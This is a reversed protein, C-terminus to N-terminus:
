QELSDGSGDPAVGSTVSDSLILAQASAARAAPVAVLAISAVGLVMVAAVMVARRAVHIFVMFVHRKM